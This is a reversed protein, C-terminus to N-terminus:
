KLEFENILETKFLSKDGSNSFLSAQANVNVGTDNVVFKIKYLRDAGFRNIIIGRKNGIKTYVIDGVNHKMKQLGLSENRRTVFMLSVFLLIVAFGFMIKQAM